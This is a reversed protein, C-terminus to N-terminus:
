EEEYWEPADEDPVLPEHESNQQNREEDAIEDAAALATALEWASMGDDYINAM